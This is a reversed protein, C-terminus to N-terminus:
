RTQDKLILPHGHASAVRFPPLPSASRHLQPLGHLRCQEVVLEGVGELAQVVDGIGAHGVQFSERCGGDLRGEDAVVQEVLDAGGVVDVGGVEDDRATRAPTM